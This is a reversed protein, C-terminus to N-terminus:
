GDGCIYKRLLEKTRKNAAKAAGTLPAGVIMVLGIHKLVLVALIGLALAGSVKRNPVVFLLTLGLMFTAALLALFAIRKTTHGDHRM